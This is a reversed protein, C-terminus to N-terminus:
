QTIVQTTISYKPTPATPTNKLTSCHAHAQPGKLKEMFRPKTITGIYQTFLELDYSIVLLHHQQISIKEFDQPSTQQPTVHLTIYESTHTNHAPLM